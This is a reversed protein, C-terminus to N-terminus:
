ANVIARLDYFTKWIKWMHAPQLVDLIDSIELTEYGANDQLFYLMSFFHTRLM